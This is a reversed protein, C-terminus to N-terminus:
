PATQHPFVSSMEFDLNDLSAIGEMFRFVKSYIDEPSCDSGWASENAHFSIGLDLSVQPEWLPSCGQLLAKLNYFCSFIVQDPHLM